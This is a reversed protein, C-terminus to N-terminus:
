KGSPWRKSKKDPHRLGSSTHAYSSVAHSPTYPYVSDEDTTGLAIAAEDSQEGPNMQEDEDTTGLVTAAENGEEGPNMQKDESSLKADKKQTGAKLQGRPRGM